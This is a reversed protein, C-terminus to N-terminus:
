YYKRWGKDRLGFYLNFGDVYTIVRSMGAGSEKAPRKVQPLANAVMIKTTLGAPSRMEPGVGGERLRKKKQIEAKM